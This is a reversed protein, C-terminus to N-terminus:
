HDITVGKSTSLGELVQAVEVRDDFPITRDGIIQYTEHGKGAILVCDGPKAIKIGLSIARKRDQEVTYGSGKFSNLLADQEYKRNGAVSATGVEIHSLISEPSETRPNDSTLISLDSLRAVVEGMIPRKEQDRDGGCGFVTILRGHTLERLVTLVNELAEPTHAYDVLISLGEGNPISELRGPVGTLNNIGDRIQSLNLGMAIGTAAASLINYVNHQGLLRSAFEFNGHPTQVTGSTGNIDVHINEGRIDCEKSLGTCLCKISVDLALEKGKKDDWNIIATTQRSRSDQVLYDLFFKKKCHWYSEMDKHYDLHDRSLNTYIGMDFQCSRVRDLDIAHSSVELVVHTVGNNAMERLIRMLDVSEPTTVPNTFTQGEFRYNITGIVGVNFGAARLISEILYATTTKGNTGTIGIVFLEESPNGYFLASLRALAQRANEVKILSIDKGISPTKETAVAVAGRRIADDIYNYGDAQLGQIAVFLGGPRVSRSDYHISNIVKDGTGIFDNAALSNVLSSLKIGGM